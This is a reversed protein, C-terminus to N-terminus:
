IEFEERGDPDDPPSQRDRSAWSLDAVRQTLGRVTPADFITRLPLKVHFERHIRSLLGTAILSHGGLEFFNDDIGVRDIGLLECWMEAIRRERDDRPEVFGQDIEPRAHQSLAPTDGAPAAGPAAQALSAARAAHILAPLDRTIVAIQPVSARLARDLADIGQAPSMGHQLAVPRANAAAASAARAAAMGVDKWTDWDISLVRRSRSADANAFADLFCNASTYDTAGAVGVVANVSSFLVLLEAEPFVSDLILTGQVKPALVAEISKRSLMQIMGGGPIGAAHFVGHVGGFAHRAAAAVGEMDARAGADAEVVLVEAGLSELERIARIRGVTSDGDDHSSLWAPWADRPPLASRGTLVLQARVTRALYKAVALGLGGLGGTILYVGQERLAAPAGAASGLRMPEFTQEWRRGARYAVIRSEEVASMGAALEDILDDTLEAPDLDISQCAVGPFEHAIVQCPGLLLSKIPAVSERGIVRQMGSSLLVVSRPGSVASEGLAQMLAVVSFLLLTADGASETVNWAHVVCGISIGRAALDAFVREYDDRADPRVTYGEECAGYADGRRVSICRQGLAAARQAIRTAVGGDDALLLWAADRPVLTTGADRVSPVRKWSPVYFWDAVDTKRALADATGAPGPKPDVMYRQREFPYAPLSVRHLQEGAHFANWDIDVGANWLDGLAALLADDDSRADLRHRGTAIVPRNPQTITQRALRTLVTGPGVEVLALGDIRALERLGDAFRVTGRLHQAWYEPTTVDEATAWRGTRNSIFPIAPAAFPVARAADLFCPIAPDMMASHFAHSTHLARCDIGRAGLKRELTAIADTPGSVVCLHPGNVAALSVTEDLLPAVEAESLPVALMRGPPMEQMLRGREAVLRLADDLSLVGALCAAVYEGISHGIMASPRIGWAMLTRAVAYEFVFLAPQTFRTQNVESEPRDAAFILDRIDRGITPQLAEACRDLEARFAPETEYLGRGMGAYQSGQGSFMFAVAPVRSADAAPAPKGADRRALAAVTDAVGRGVVARRHDFRKRGVQLTYAVDALEVGPHAHLYAALRSAADDLAAASRASLVLLQDRRRVTSAARPPAEQLVAHANTGGIGFSSVGARRPADTTWEALSANVYFPSDSFDIEPNPTEFNLSAPLMRNELSLATKILGAIGAAADLHGINSKVSGIACFKQKTTGARFVRSLAGIEIPDGLPTATGHAEIYSISDPTVRAQAHALRIVDAQGDISPATYGMKGAGDNNVAAGLIVARINDRDAIADALRKLVVVGAGAGGRIGRGRADFPRCHGDPSFIMGEQYLYGARDPFGISVGGALAM